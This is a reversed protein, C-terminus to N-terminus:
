NSGINGIQITGRPLLFRFIPVPILQRSFDSFGEHFDQGRIVNYVVIGM